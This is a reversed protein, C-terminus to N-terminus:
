MGLLKRAHERSSESITEGSILRAIENVRQKKDLERVSMKFQDGQPLKEIVFHHDAEAAVQPLHTV